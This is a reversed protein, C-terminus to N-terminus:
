SPYPLNHCHDSIQAVDASIICLQQGVQLRCSALEADRRESPNKILLAATANQQPCSCSRELNLVDYGEFSLATKKHTHNEHSARRSRRISGNTCKASRAM